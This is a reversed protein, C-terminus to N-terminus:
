VEERHDGDGGLLNQVARKQLKNLNRQAVEELDTGLESSMMALYWLVDGIEDILDDRRSGADGKSDRYVKKVRGSIRAAKGAAMMALAEIQMKELLEGCEGVLGLATYALGIETPYIATQKAQVQYDLLTLERPDPADMIITKSKRNLKM